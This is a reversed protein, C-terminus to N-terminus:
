LLRMGLPAGLPASVVSTSGKFRIRTMGAYSRFLPRLAFRIEEKAQDRTAVGPDGRDLKLLDCIIRGKRVVAATKRQYPRRPPKRERPAGCRRRTAQPRAVAPTAVRAGASCGAPAARPAQRREPAAARDRRCCGRTAPRFGRQSGPPSTARYRM